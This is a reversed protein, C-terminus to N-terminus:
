RSYADLSAKRLTQLADRAAKVFANAGRGSTAVTQARDVKSRGGARPRLESAGVYRTKDGAKVIGHQATAARRSCPWTAQRRAFGRAFMLADSLATRRVSQQRAISTGPTYEPEPLACVLFLLLLPSAIM